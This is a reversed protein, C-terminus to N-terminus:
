RGLQAIGIHCGRHGRQQIGLDLLGGLDDWWCVEYKRSGTFSEFVAFNGQPAELVPSKGLAKSDDSFADFYATNVGFTYLSATSDGELTDVVPVLSPIGLLNRSLIALSELCGNPGFAAFPSHINTLPLLCPVCLDQPPSVIVM